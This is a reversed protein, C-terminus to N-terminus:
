SSLRGGNLLTRSVNVDACIFKRRQMSPKVQRILNRPFQPSSPPSCQRINLILLNPSTSTWTSLVVRLSQDMAFLVLLDQFILITEIGSQYPLQALHLRHITRLTLIFIYARYPKCGDFSRYSLTISHGFHKVKTCQSVHMMWSAVAQPEFATDTATLYAARSWTICRTLKPEYECRSYWFRFIM